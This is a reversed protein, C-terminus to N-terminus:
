SETLTNLDIQNKFFLHLYFAEDKFVCPMDECDPYSSDFISKDYFVKINDLSPSISSILINIIVESLNDSSKIVKHIGRGCRASEKIM